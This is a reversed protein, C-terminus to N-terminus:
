LELAAKFREWYTELSLHHKLGSIKQSLQEKNELTQEIVQALEAPTIGQPTLTLLDKLEKFSGSETAIVPKNLNLLQNVVGSSEGYTPWRLQVAVDIQEMLSLLEEHTPSNVIEIFKPLDSKLFSLNVKLHYGALILKLPYNKNLIKCAELLINPHKRADLGGFHGIWVESRPSSVLPKAINEDIIPLFLIPCNVKTFNGIDQIVLRQAEESHVLIKKSQSLHYLPRIGSIKANEIIEERSNCAMIENTKEPYFNTLFRKLENINNKFYTYWLSILLVDHLYIHKECNTLAKDYLLTHLTHIHHPSDGLIFIAQQYHYLKHSIAFLKPHFAQNKSNSNFQIQKQVSPFQHYFHINLQANKFISATYDAIGSNDPPLISFIPLANATHTNQVKKLSSRQRPLRLYPAILASANEWTLQKLITAGFELSLKRLNSDLSFEHIKTAIQQPDYPDFLCQPHVIEKISSTHSAIVPTGCAYSELIPLGLGEYLSPFILGKANKLLQVLDYDSVHGTIFIDKQPKLGIELILQHLKAKRENTISCIIVLPYPISRANMEFLIGYAHIIGTLNKRWDDGAIYVFYKQEYLTGFPFTSKEKHQSSNKILELIEQGIGGYINTIKEFPFSLLKAADKASQESITFLHDAECMAACAALYVTKNELGLYKNSFILPILDWIVGLINPFHGYLFSPFLYDFFYPNDTSLPFCTIFYNHIDKNNFLTMGEDFFFFHGYNQFDQHFSPLPQGRDLMFYFNSGPYDVAIQMILNRVYRSIGRDQYTQTVRLDFITCETIASM